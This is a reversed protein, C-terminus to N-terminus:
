DLHYSLCALSIILQNGSAVSLYTSEDLLGQPSTALRHSLTPCSTARGQPNITLLSALGWPGPSLM